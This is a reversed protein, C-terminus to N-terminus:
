KLQAYVQKWFEKEDIRAKLFDSIRLRISEPFANWYKEPWDHMERRLTAEEEKPMQGVSFAIFQKIMTLLADPPLGSQKKQSKKTSDPVWEDLLIALQQDTIDPANQKILRVVMDKVSNRIQDMPIKMQESIKSTSATVMDSLSKGTSLKGKTRRDLAAKIAILEKETARNLIFDIITFLNKELTKGKWDKLGPDRKSCPHRKGM